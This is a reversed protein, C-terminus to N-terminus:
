SYTGGRFVGVSVNGSGARVPAWVVAAEHWQAVSNENSRRRRDNQM